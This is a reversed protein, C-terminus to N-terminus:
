RDGDEEEFDDALISGRAAVLRAQNPAPADGERRLPLWLAFAALLRALPACLPSLWMPLRCLASVPEILVHHQM